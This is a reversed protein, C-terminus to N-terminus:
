RVTLSVTTTKTISGSTATATITYTGAPTGKPAPTTGGGGGGCSTWAFAALLTAALLLLTRRNRGAMKLITAALMLWAALWPLYTQPATLPPAKFPSFMPPAAARSQTVVSLTVDSPTDTGDPTISAPPNCTSRVPSGSCSFTVAQNFGNTPTLTLTYSATQGADVTVSTTVRTLTFEPQFGNGTLAVTRPSGPADDTITVSGTISGSTTPAFTVNIVCNNGTTVAAGSCGSVAYAAGTKTVSAINLTATGTNTVTIPLAASTTGVLTDPFTLMLPPNLSVAPAAVGTGSLALDHSTVSANDSITLFGTRAGTASPTLTMDIQCNSGAAVSAGCTTSGAIDYDAAHTGTTTISSITLAATGMNSLVVSRLATTFGVGISGFVLSDSSFAAGPLNAMDIKAIFADDFIGQPAPEFADLTIPFTASNTRGAIVIDNSSGVAVGLPLDFNGGGGFYTSFTISSGGSSLKTIFGDYEMLVGSKTSQLPTVLPFPRTMGTQPTATGGAIVPNGSGDVAIAVARDDDSGGLYTLFSLSSAGTLNTDVKAVLADFCAYGPDSCTSSSADLTSQVASKVALNSSLTYGAAFAKSTSDLALAVTQDEDNGGIYSSYLISSGTSNIKTIFGDSFGGGFATQFGGSTPFTNTGTSTVTTVGTVIANGTSNQVGIASAFDDGQGGLYRLYVRSANGSATPNFKGVFAEGCTFTNPSAGCTDGVTFSGITAPFDASYTNGAVYFNNSSDVTITNGFDVDSGGMFTSYVLDSGDNLLVTAFADDCNYTPNSGRQCTGPTIAGQFAGASVPFDSSVTNGVVYAQGGGNVAIGFGGDLESGGLFTSYLLTTGDLSLKTVFADFCPSPSTSAACGTGAPATALLVGPTTPLNGANTQGVVYIGTADVAVGFASTNGNSGGLYTSFNLVPDIILPRSPDYTGLNFGVRGAALVAFDANVLHKQGDAMQYAVPRHFLIGEPETALILDGVPSIRFLEESGSGDLAVQMAIQSPDGGPAVVFDYELQGESGYYVWDVGPYVERYRVRTFNEIGTHWHSRDRGILYNSRGPLKAEGEIKPTPNADALRFRAVTRTTAAPARTRRYDRWGSDKADHQPRTLVLVVERPTLFLTHSTGRSAFKVQSDFQGANKEFRLAGGSFVSLAAQRMEPTVARASGGSAKVANESRASNKPAENEQAWCFATILILHSILVVVRHLGKMFSEEGQTLPISPRRMNESSGVFRSELPMTWARMTNDM